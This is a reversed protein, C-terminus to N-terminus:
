LDTGIYYKVIYSTDGSSDRGGILYTFGKYTVLDKYNRQAIGVDISSWSDLVTDYVVINTTNTLGSTDYTPIYVKKDLTYAKLFSGKIYSASNLTVWTDGISDYKYAYSGRFVYLVNDVAATITYHSSPFDALVSWNGSVFDYTQAKNSGNSAIFYAKTGIVTVQSSWDMIYPSQSLLTYTNLERDFHLLQNRSIVYIERDYIFSDSYYEDYYSSSKTLYSFGDGIVESSSVGNIWASSSSYVTDSFMTLTRKEISTKSLIILEDDIIEANPSFPTLHMEEEVIPAVTRDDIHITYDFSQENDDNTFTLVIEEDGEYISDDIVEIEIFGDVVNADLTFSKVAITFDDGETATSADSITVSMNREFNQTDDMVFYFRHSYDGEMLRLDSDKFTFQYDPATIIIVLTQESVNLSSDTSSFTVEYEGAVSTDPLASMVVSDSIDGDIDDIATASPLVINDGIMININNNEINLVPAEIDSVSVVRTIIITNGSSDEASYTVNYDGLTDTDVDGEIVVIVDEDYNDSVTAGQEEYLSKYGVIVASDGMLTIFPKTTDVVMIERTTTTIKEASDTVSYTIVYTGVATIDVTGSIQVSLEGNLNSESVAGLEDYQNHVELTIVSEGNLSLSILEEPTTTDPTTTDPTTTDPTTTDPTTTDPTTTDPTTTDPTTTDPTTTDPTTTDPTTTDPTTTDPTTTDPTTTDPTTTDPTSEESGGCAMLTFSLALATVINRFEM